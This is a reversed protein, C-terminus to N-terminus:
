RITRAHGLPGSERAARIGVASPITVWEGGRDMHLEFDHIAGGDGYGTFLHIGALQQSAGLDVVLWAPEKSAVSVWRSEDSVVGDIARAAPFKEQGSSATASVPKLPQPVAQLGAQHGDVEISGPKGQSLAIGASLFFPALIKMIPSPIPLLRM